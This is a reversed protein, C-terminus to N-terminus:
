TPKRRLHEQCNRHVFTTKWVPRGHSDLRRVNDDFVALTLSHTVPRPSRYHLYGIPETPERYTRRSPKKDLQSAVRVARDVTMRYM